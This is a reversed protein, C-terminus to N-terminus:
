RRGSDALRPCARRTNCRGGGACCRRFHLCTRQSVCCRGRRPRYCASRQRQDSARESSRGRGRFARVLRRLLDHQGAGDFPLRRTIRRLTSGCVDRTRREGGTSAETYAICLRQTATVPIPTPFNANVWGVFAAGEVTAVTTGLVAQSNYDFLTLQRTLLPSNQRWFRAAVVEGPITMRYVMSIQVGGAYGGAPPTVAANIFEPSGLAGASQAARIAGTVQEYRLGGLFDDSGSVAALSMQVRGDGVSVQVGNIFPM